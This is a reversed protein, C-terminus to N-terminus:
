EDGDSAERLQKLEREIALIDKPRDALVTGLEALGAALPVFVPQNIDLLMTANPRGMLRDLITEAARVALNGDGKAAKFLNAVVAEGDAEWHIRFLELAGPPAKPRGAPNGSVGKVFPRGRPRKGAKRSNGAPRKPKPRNEPRRPTAM